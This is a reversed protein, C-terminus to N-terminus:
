SNLFDMQENEPLHLRKDEPERLELHVREFPSVEIRRATTNEEIAARINKKTKKTQLEEM